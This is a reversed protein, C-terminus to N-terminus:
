GVDLAEKAAQHLRGVDILYFRETGLAKRDLLTRIECTRVVKVRVTDRRKEAM